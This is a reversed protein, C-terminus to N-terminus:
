GHLTTKTAASSSAAAAAASRLNRFDHAIKDRAKEPTVEVWIGKKTKEKKTPKAKATSGTEGSGTCHDDDENHGGGGGGGGAGPQERVLFRSGTDVMRQLVSEAIKTKQYKDAEEYQQLHELLLNQLKRNGPKNKNHRGRGMIVDEPGPVIIVSSSRRSGIGALRGPLAQPPPAPIELGTMATGASSLRVENMNVSHEQQQQQQQTQQQQQQILQNEDYAVVDFGKGANKDKGDESDGGFGLGIAKWFSSGLNVSMRSDRGGGYNERMKPIAVKDGDDLLMDVIGQIDSDTSHISTTNSQHQHQPQQQQHHHHHRQQSRISEERLLADIMGENFDKEIVFKEQKKMVLKQNRRHNDDRSNNTNNDGQALPLSSRPGHRRTVTSSKAPICEALIGYTMLNYCCEEHTSVLHPVLRLRRFPDMIKQGAMYLRHMWKDDYIYHRAVCRIPLSSWSHLIRHARRNDFESQGIGYYIQVAGTKQDDEIMHHHNGQGALSLMMSEVLVFSIRIITREPLMYQQQGFIIQVPRGARDREPLWQMVGTRKWVDIEEDTLDGVTIPRTLISYYSADDDDDDPPPAASPPPPAFNNTLSTRRKNNNTTDTTTPCGFYTWKQDFYRYMRRSARKTNWDESRLFAMRLSKVYRLDISMARGLATRISKSSRKDSSPDASRSNDTEWGGGAAAARGHSNSNKNINNINGFLGIGISQGNALKNLYHDMEKMWMEVEQPTEDPITTSVGYKDFNARHQDYMTTTSSTTTTTNPNPTATATTTATATAANAASAVGEGVLSSRLTAMVFRDESDYDDVDDDDHNDAMRPRKNYMSREEDNRGERNNRVNNSGSSNSNSGSSNNGAGTDDDQRQPQQQQQQQQEQRFLSELQDLSWQELNTGTATTSSSSYRKM